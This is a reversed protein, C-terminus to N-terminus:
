YWGRSKMRKLLDDVNNALLVEILDDKEEDGLAVVDPNDLSLKDRLLSLGDQVQRYGKRQADSVAAAQMGELELIKAVLKNRAEKVAGPVTNNAAAEALERPSLRLGEERSVPKPAEIVRPAKWTRAEDPVKTESTDVM